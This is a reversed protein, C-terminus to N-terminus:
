YVRFKKWEYGCPLHGSLYIQLMQEYFPDTYCASFYNALFLFLVDSRITVLEEEGVIGKRKLGSKIRKSVKGIYGSQQIEKVVHNWGGPVEWMANTLNNRRELCANERVLSNLRAVAMEQNDEIYVEFRDFTKDGCNCFWDCSVLQEFFEPKIGLKDWEM